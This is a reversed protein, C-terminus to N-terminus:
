WIYNSLPKAKFVKLATTWPLAMVENSTDLPGREIPAAWCFALREADEWSEEQEKRSNHLRKEGSGMDRGEIEQKLSCRKAEIPPSQLWASRSQINARSSVTHLKPCGVKDERFRIKRVPLIIFKIEHPEYTYTTLIHLWINILVGTTGWFLCASGM